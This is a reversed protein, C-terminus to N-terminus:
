DCSQWKKLPQKEAALWLIASSTASSAGVNEDRATRLPKKVVDCPGGTDGTGGNVGGPGGHAAHHDGHADHHDGHADHHDGHAAHHDGHADHHDGHADHHDGGQAKPAGDLWPDPDGGHAAHHDGGHAVHDGHADHHDGGHAAHDGHAHHHDGRAKPSAAQRQRLGALEKNLKIIECHSCRLQWYIGAPGERRPVATPYAWHGGLHEHCRICYPPDPKPLRWAM